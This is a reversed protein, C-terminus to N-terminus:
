TTAINKTIFAVLTCNIGEETKARLVEKEEVDGASIIKGVIIAVVIEAITPM